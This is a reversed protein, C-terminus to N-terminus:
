GIALVKDQVQMKESDGIVLNPANKSEVKIIAVDKGEGVPAGYAKVVYPLRTGDPLVVEATPNARM